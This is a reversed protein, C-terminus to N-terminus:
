TMEKVGEYMVDNELPPRKNFPRELSLRTSSVYVDEMHDTKWREHLKLLRESVTNNSNLVVETIWGSRLSHLGYEKPDCGLSKLADKVM